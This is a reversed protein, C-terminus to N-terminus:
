QGVQALLLKAAASNQRELAVVGGVAFMSVARLLEALQSLAGADFRHYAGHTLRAIEEFRKQAAFDQGEQFLFAPIGLKALEAAGRALLDPKEECADGVFVMANIKRRLAEQAVHGLVQKIQTEGADCKIKTMLSALEMPDDVWKSAKCEGGMGRIGRYFVLQMSLMGITAVKRFMQAQLTCAADWTRERSATADLAFILNGRRPQATVGTLFRDVRSSVTDAMTREQQNNNTM